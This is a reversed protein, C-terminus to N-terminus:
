ERNMMHEHFTGSESSMTAGPAVAIARDAPRPLSRRAQWRIMRFFIPERQMPAAAHIEKM